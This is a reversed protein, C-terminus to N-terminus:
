GERKDCTTRRLDEVLRAAQRAREAGPGATPAPSVPPLNVLRCLVGRLEADRRGNERQARWEVIGAVMFLVVVGALGSALVAWVKPPIEWRRPPATM